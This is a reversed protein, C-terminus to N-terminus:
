NDVGCFGFDDSFFAEILSSSLDSQVQLSTKLANDEYNVSIPPALVGYTAGKEFCTTM